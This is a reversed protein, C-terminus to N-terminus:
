SRKRCNRRGMAALGEGLHSVVWYGMLGRVTIFLGYRRYRDKRREVSSEQPNKASIIGAGSHAAQGPILIEIELRFTIDLVASVDMLADRYQLSVHRGQNRLM